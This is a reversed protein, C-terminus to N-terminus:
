SHEVVLGQDDYDWEIVKWGAAECAGECAERQGINSLLVVSGGGAAGLGKWGLVIREAMLPDVVQRFPDHLAPDLADVGACVERFAAVVADRRDQQLGDTMQRAALRIQMLGRLVEEDGADYRDWIQQHLDGSVHTEGSYAVVLQRKLWNKASELPAFPLEEVSDGIFLLHNFGGRWAAWQDQRGGRNGLLTELQFAKEAISSDSGGGQKDEADQEASAAIAGILAVNLAGSTGLGSGSPVDSWYRVSLKDEADITLEAHAYSDIAFNVVEGGVDSTYPAVDTWGGALDIRVPARTTIHKVMM